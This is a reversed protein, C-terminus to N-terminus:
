ELGARRFAELYHEREAEEKMLLNSAMWTLSIDPQMRRVAELTAKALDMDGALVAATMLTRHGSVFDPRQRIGERALRIAETYNGGAVEAFAAITSYIASFPDRPSLRQARRVAEAGERWRGVYSLALGYYAQALSFSPNLRLAAEFGGVADDFRRLYGHITAIALHAWPEESDARLAALAAREAAPVAVARDEWGMFAGFTHSVALVALAQAYNPDIAIAKELLAQAAINDEQTVRWYHGLAQMLLDWADLSEPPKRQARFNEAAHVQPEIGAVIAETIEDQVAFVDALSRDYREGWLQSGTAVDSLQATIRVRAGSKRVSGEVLYRVGLEEAIQKMSASRGKYAFSSNRAIVFFWRLKSIATIIDESIGDSFYEQEPEGSMNIFPLVAIGPRDSPWLAPRSTEQVMTEPQPRKEIHLKSAATDVARGAYAHAAQQLAGTSTVNFEQLRRQAIRLQEEAEGGRGAAHLLRILTAHAGENDPEILSLARAHSLAEDPADELRAVLETLLRGRLRQAAEREWTCWSQFEQCDPLDLGELFDGELAVVAQRLADTSISDIGNKVAKRLSLIDVAVHDLDLRVTERDAIIRQRDPEDVLPRLRTLSWRLAARPDDPIHWFLACLRERSHPRATVALYALLARTKKSRPLLMKTGHNLIALNGLLSIRLM